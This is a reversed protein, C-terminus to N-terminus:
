RNERLLVEELELITQVTFTPTLDLPEKYFSPNVWLTDMGVADAGCIDTYYNDGVFLTNEPLIGLRGSVHLFTFPDPKSRGIEESIFLQDDKFFKSLGLRSIKKYANHITGNTLIGLTYKEHLRNLLQIVHQDPVINQLYNEHYRENIVKVEDHSLNLSYEDLTLSLRNITFEQFTLRKEQFDKWLTHNVKIFTHLFMEEDLHNLCDNSNVMSIIAEKFCRTHDFLTDDLDFLLCRYNGNRM